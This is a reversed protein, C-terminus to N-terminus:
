AGSIRIARRASCGIRSEGTWGIMSATCLPSRSGRRACAAKSRLARGALSRAVCKHSRLAGIAVFLCPRVAEYLAALAYEGSGDAAWIQHVYESLAAREAAPLWYFRREVLAQVLRNGARLCFKLPRRARRLDVSSSGLPGAVRVIDMPTVGREWLDAVFGARGSEVSNADHPRAPLGFPSVLILQRVRQPFREAFAVSVYGGFSHGMLVFRDLKMADAWAALSDVFFAESGAVDNKRFSPKPRSSLGFGLLDLAYPSSVRALDNLNKFWFALGAGYGHVM